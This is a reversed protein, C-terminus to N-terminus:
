KGDGHIQKREEPSFRSDARPGPSWCSALAGPRPTQVPIVFTDHGDASKDIRGGAQRVAQDALQKNTTPAQNGAVVAANVVTAEKATEDLAIPIVARGNVDRQFVQSAVPSKIKIEQATVTPGGFGQALAVPPTSLALGVVAFLIIILSGVGRSSQLSAFPRSRSM